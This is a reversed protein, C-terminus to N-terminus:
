FISYSSCNAASLAGSAVESSGISVLGLNESVRVCRMSSTGDIRLKLDIPQSNMSTGRPTFVIQNSSTGGGNTIVASFTHGGTLGPIRFVPDSTCNSPSVSALTSGAQAATSSSFTVVCGGSSANPSTQKLANNRVAELWGSLELAVTNIRERRWENGSISITAASLIGIIAVTVLLEALTFGPFAQCTPQGKTNM